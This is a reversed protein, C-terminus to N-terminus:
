LEGIWDPHKKRKKLWDQKSYLLGDLCYEVNGNYYIIAPGTLRHWRGNSHWRRYLIGDTNYRIYSPEDDRSHLEGRYRTEKWGSKGEVYGDSYEVTWNAEEAVLSDLLEINEPRSYFALYHNVEVIKM